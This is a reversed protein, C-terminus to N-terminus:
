GPKSTPTQQSQNRQYLATPYLHSSIGKCRHHHLRNRWPTARGSLRTVDILSAQPPYHFLKIHTSARPMVYQHYPGEPLRRSSVLSSPFCRCERGMWSSILRAFRLRHAAFDSLPRPLLTGFPLLSSPYLCPHLLHQTQPTKPTQTFQVITSNANPRSKKSAAFTFLLDRSVHSNVMMEDAKVNRKQQM